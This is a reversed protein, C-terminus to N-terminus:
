RMRRQVALLTLFVPVRLAVFPKGRKRQKAAAALEKASSLDYRPVGIDTGTAADLAAKTTTYTTTDKKKSRKKAMGRSARAGAM